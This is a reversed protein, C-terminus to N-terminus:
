TAVHGRRARGIWRPAQHCYADFSAGRTRRLHPEEIAVVVVHFFAALAAGYIAITQSRFAIAVGIVVLLVSLYMPNRSRRYLGGAVLGSPEEGILARLPRSFFIAPTGGSALFRLLCLLYGAARALVLLWGARWWGGAVDAHPEIAMPVVVAVVVPM